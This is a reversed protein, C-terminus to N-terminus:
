RNWGPRRIELKGGDKAPRRAPGGFKSTAEATLGGHRVKVPDTSCLVRPTKKAGLLIAGAPGMENIEPTQRKIIRCGLFPEGVGALLRGHATGLM